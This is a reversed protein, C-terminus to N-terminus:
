AEELLLLNPHFYSDRALSQISLETSSQFCNSSSFARGPTTLFPSVLRSWVLRLSIALANLPVVRRAPHIDIGSISLFSFPFSTLSTVFLPQPLTTVPLHYTLPTMGRRM